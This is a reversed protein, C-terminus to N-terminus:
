AFFFFLAALFIMTFVLMVIAVVALKPMPAQRNYDVRSARTLKMNRRQLPRSNRYMDNLRRRLYLKMGFYVLLAIILITGLIPIIIRLPLIWFSTAASITKRGEEGYLLAVIAEYRGFTLGEGEWEVSFTRRANPLVAGGSDNIRLVGVKKGFMDTIDVPGRPRVLVNGENEVEVGIKVVPEGYLTKDTLFERIQAEEIINGGIRFNMITGVQYGVGAGTERQREADASFFVGGFHGGPSAGEPVAVVYTVKKEEGPELTFERISPTIWQSLEFGTIEGPEAFVPSGGNSIGSIDRTVVRYTRPVTELNTISIVGSFTQGPEIRDEVIAPAIKAGASDQQAHSNHPVLFAVFISVIVITLLSSFVTTTIRGM